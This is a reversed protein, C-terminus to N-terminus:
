VLPGDVQPEDVSVTVALRAKFAPGDIIWEGGDRPTPFPSSFALPLAVVSVLIGGVGGGLLLACLSIRDASHSRARMDLRTGRGVGVITPEVLGLRMAGSRM